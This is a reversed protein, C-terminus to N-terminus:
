YRRKGDIYRQFGVLLCPFPLTFETAGSRFHTGSGSRIGVGAMNSNFSVNMTHHLLQTPCWSVYICVLLMLLVRSGVFLIPTIVFRVVNQGRFDYRDNCCPVLFM